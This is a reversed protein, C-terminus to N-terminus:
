LAKTTKSLLLSLVLTIGFTLWPLALYNVEVPLVSYYYLYKIIFEQFIYVGFCLNGISIYFKSLQHNNTYWLATSYIAILGLSSYFVKCFTVTIKFVVKVFFPAVESMEIIHATFLRLVIFIVLFLLWSVLMRTTTISCRFSEGHQWTKYGAFFFLLYYPVRGIQFPIYPYPLLAFFSLVILKTRDSIEIKEIIWM